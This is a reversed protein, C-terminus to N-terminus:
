YILEHTRRFKLYEDSSYYLRLEENTVRYSKIHCGRVQDEVFNIHPNDALVKTGGCRTVTFEGDENFTYTGFLENGIWGKLDGNEDLVLYLDSKWNNEKGTFNDDSGYGLLLWNGYPAPIRGEGVEDDSSSCGAIVVGALLLWCAIVFSKKMCM